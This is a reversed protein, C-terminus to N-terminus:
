AKKKRGFLGFRKKKPEVPKSNKNAFNGQEMPDKQKSVTPTTSRKDPQVSKKSVRVSSVRDQKTNEPKRGFRSGVSAKEGEADKAQKMSMSGNASALARQNRQKMLSARMQPQSPAKPKLNWKNSEEKTEDPHSTNLKGVYRLLTLEFGNKKTRVVDAVQDVKMHIASIGDIAALQDGIEVSTRAASGEPMIRTIWCGSPNEQFVMGMPLKMDAVVFKIDNMIDVEKTEDFEYGHMKHFSRASETALQILRLDQDLSPASKLASAPTLSRSEKKANGYKESSPQEDPMSSSKPLGSSGLLSESVYGFISSNNQASQQKTAPRSSFRSQPPSRDDVSVTATGSDSEEPALFGLAGGIAGVGSEMMNWVGTLLPDEDEELMLSQTNKSKSDTATEDDPLTSGRTDDDENYFKATDDDELSELTSEDQTDARHKQIKKRGPKNDKSDGILLFDKFLDEVESEMSKTYDSAHSYTTSTEPNTNPYHHVTDTAGFSVQSRKNPSTDIPDSAATAAKPNSKLPAGAREAKDHQRNRKWAEQARLSLSAPSATIKSGSREAPTEISSEDVDDSYKRSSSSRHRTKKRSMKNRQSPLNQQQNRKTGDGLDEFLSDDMSADSHNLIIDQAKDDSNLIRELTDNLVLEPAQDKL